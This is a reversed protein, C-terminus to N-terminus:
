HAGMTDEMAATQRHLTTTMVMLLFSILCCAASLYIVQSYDEGNVVLASLAAGASLGMGTVFSSIVASKGSPDIASLLGLQYPIIFNWSFKLACILCVFLAFAQKDLLFFLALLKVAVLLAIPGLRGFRQSLWTACSAGAFGAAAGVALALGVDTLVLGSFLGLREAYTWISSQAAFFLFVAGLMLVIPTLQQLNASLGTTHTINKHQQPLWRNFLLAPAILMSLIAYIGNLSHAPLLQPLLWLAGTAYCLQGMSFLGFNRDPKATQALAGYTLAVFTGAGFGAVFRCLMLPAITTAFLSALNGGLILLAAIQVIRRWDLRNIWLTGVLAALSLSITELSVMLGAQQESFGRSVIMGGVLLPAIFVVSAAIVGTYIFAFLARPDNISPMTEQYVEAPNCTSVDSM